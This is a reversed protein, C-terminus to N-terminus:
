GVVGGGARGRCGSGRCGGPGAGGAAREQSLCLASPKRGNAVASSCPVRHLCVPPMYAFGFARAHVCLLVRFRTTYLAHHLAGTCAWLRVLVSTKLTCPTPHLTRPRPTVILCPRLCSVGSRSQAPRRPRASPSSEMEGALHPLPPSLTFALSLFNLFFSFVRTLLEDPEFTPAGIQEFFFDCWPRRSSNAVTEDPEFPPSRASLGIDLALKDFWGVSATVQAHPARYPYVYLNLCLTRIGIYIRVPVCPCLSVPVYACLCLCM